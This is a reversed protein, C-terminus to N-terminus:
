QNQNGQKDNAEGEKRDKRPSKGEDETEDQDCRFFKPTEKSKERKTAKVAQAKATLPQENQTLDVNRRSRKRAPECNEDATTYDGPQRM